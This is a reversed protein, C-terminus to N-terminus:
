QKLKWKYRWGEIFEKTAQLHTIHIIGTEWDIWVNKNRVSIHTM